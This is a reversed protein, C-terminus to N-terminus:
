ANVVEDYFVEDIIKKNQRYAARKQNALERIAERSTEILTDQQKVEIYRALLANEQELTLQM